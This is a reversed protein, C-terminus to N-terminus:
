NTRTIRFLLGADTAYYVEGNNGQEVERIRTRDDGFLREEWVKKGDKIEVLNLHTMALAGNIVLGRWAPLENGSYVIMGSPAISPVWYHMPNEMGPVEHQGIAPGHYETGWTAKPWGYNFGKRIHNIEDGGKPGHESEWIQNTLHNKALGQPNRHGYSFIEPKAGAQNVFPNNPHAKGESTLRLIKGLHNDLRQANNRDNREGVSLWISFDSDIVLRGGFHEGLTSPNQAVFIEKFGRIETGEFVGYGLATTYRGGGMDKAYSFYVRGDASFNPSLALDLLGGQGYNASKPGGTITQATKNNPDFRKIGGTKITMLLDGDPLSAIGWVHGLNRGILERQLDMGRSNFRRYESQAHVDSVEPLAALLSGLALAKCLNKWQAM